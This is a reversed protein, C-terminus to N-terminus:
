YAGRDYSQNKKKRMRSKGGGVDKVGDTLGGGGIM